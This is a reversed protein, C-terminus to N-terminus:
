CGASPVSTTGFTRRDLPRCCAGACIILLAVWQLGRLRTSFVASHLAATSVVRLQMLMSYTGPDLISLNHFVLNNYACYLAGPVAYLLLTRSSARASEVLDRVSGDQVLFFGLATV